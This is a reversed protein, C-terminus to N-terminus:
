IGDSEGAPTAAVKAEALLELTGHEACWKGIYAWDLAAEGQVGIVAVVDDFDKSRRGVAAEGNM